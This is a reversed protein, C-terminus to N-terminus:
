KELYAAVGDWSSGPPEAILAELRQRYLTGLRDDPRTTAPLLLRADVFRRDLYAAVIGDWRAARDIDADSLMLPNDVDEAASRLGLLEHIETPMQRGKPLVRDVHRFVFDTGAAARTAETVLIQTGYQKNLGELRSAMNVTTGIATYAMRDTSGVNGVVAEGTNVGFRTRLAPWGRQEFEGTLRESLDRCRLAAVCARAAHDADLGPANWLAMVADGVYKDITGGAGMLERTMQEFYASTLRMLMEADMGDAISTFGVIDTFMVSLVRREGGLRATGDGGMLQRVLDKPVYVSFTHLASKMAQMTLALRAVETIHSSIIVTSDLDFRRIADAERTLAALPRTIRSAVLAILCLGLVGGALFLLVTRDRAREIPGIFDAAPAVVAVMGRPSGIHDLPAVRALYTEGGVDIEIGRGPALRGTAYDIWVARMIPDPSSAITIWTPDQGAARPSMAIARDSHALLIGNDDIIFASGRPSIRQDALFAGLSNLGVDIGLVGGAPMHRVITLGPVGLAPFMHLVTTAIGDNNLGTRFWIEDRPDAAPGTARQELIRGGSDLFRWTEERQGAVASTVARVAFRAGQPVQLALRREATMADLNLVQLLAGDASAASVARAQPLVELLGRFSAEAPTITARTGPAVDPLRSAIAITAYLPDVLAATRAATRATLDAIQRNASAVAARMAERYTAVGTLGIVAVFVLAFASLITVTLSIRFRRGGPDARKTAEAMATM